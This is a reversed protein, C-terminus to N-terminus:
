ALGSAEPVWNDYVSTIIIGSYDVVFGFIILGRERIFFGWFLKDRELNYLSWKEKNKNISFGAMSKKIFLFTRKIHPVSFNALWSIEFLSRYIQASERRLTSFYDSCFPPLNM